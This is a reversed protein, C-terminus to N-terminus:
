AVVKAKRGSVLRELEAIRADQAAVTRELAAIKKTESQGRSSEFDEAKLQQPVAAVAKVRAKEKAVDQATDRMMPHDPVNQGCRICCVVGGRLCLDGNCRTELVGPRPLGSVAECRGLPNGQPIANFKPASVLDPM